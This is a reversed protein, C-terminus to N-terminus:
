LQVPVQIPAIAPLRSTDMGAQQLSTLMNHHTTAIAQAMTRQFMSSAMASSLQTFLEKSVKESTPHVTDAFWKDLEANARSNIDKFVEEIKPQIHKFLESWVLQRFPTMKSGFAICKRDLYKENSYGSSRNSDYQPNEIKVTTESVTLMAETSFFAKVENSLLADLQEKPVLDVYAALIKERMVDKFASPLAVDTSSM